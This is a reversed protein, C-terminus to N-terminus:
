PSPNYRRRHARALAGAFEEEPLTMYFYLSRGDFRSEVMLVRRYESREEKRAKDTRGIWGLARQQNNPCV